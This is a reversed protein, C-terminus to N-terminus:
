QKLEKPSLRAKDDVRKDTEPEVQYSKNAGSAQADESMQKKVSPEAQSATGSPEQECGALSGVVLIMGCTAAVVRRACGLEQSTNPTSPQLKMKFTEM